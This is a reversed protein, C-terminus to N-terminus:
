RAKWRNCQAPTSCLFGCAEQSSQPGQLCGPGLFFSEWGCQWRGWFQSRASLPFFLIVKVFGRKTTSLNLADKTTQKNKKKFWTRFNNRFIMRVFFLFLYFYIIVCKSQSQMKGDWADWLIEQQSKLFCFTLQLCYPSSLVCKFALTYSLVSLFTNMGFGWVAHIGLRSELQFKLCAKLLPAANVTRRWTFASAALVCVCVATLTSTAQANDSGCGLM